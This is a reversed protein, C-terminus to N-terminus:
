KKKVSIFVSTPTNTYVHVEFMGWIINIRFIYPKM